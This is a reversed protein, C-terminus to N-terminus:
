RLSNFINDDIEDTLRFIQYNEKFDEADKEDAIGIFSWYGMKVDDNTKYESDGFFGVYEKTNLILPNLLEQIEIMM